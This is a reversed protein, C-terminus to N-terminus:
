PLVFIRYYRVSASATNTNSATSGTALIDPVQDTWNTGSLDDLYQLRYGQGPISTWTVTAVGNTFDIYQIVPQSAITLIANSSTATGFSNSVIVNYSGADSVAVSSITFTSNTQGDLTNTGKLWQYSPLTGTVGVTFSASTGPVNTRSQPQATIIPDIVTLLAPPTSTVSGFANSVSVTYSAGDPGLVNNVSLTSTMSGSINGGDNLGVGNRFWQYNLTATGTVAVTFNATTGANNTRSQPQGTILPDNVTLLAPPASTVVGFSNSVTVTYVAEDPGFVNNVSLTTSTAGSINGGNSLPSGNRFWRYNLTPAGSASVTFTATTGPNNTRSAPQASIFPDIVTLIAPPASTVTSFNNSVTVTYNADDGGQVSSISLSATTVGSIRGGNSMGVGNKFWRYRLTPSGNATVTFTATTGANNTRSQPQGSIFPDLVTLIGPTSTVVATANSVVVFYNGADTGDANSVTLTSNTQGAIPTNGFRWQYNLGPGLAIVNFTANSGANVTLNAPPQMILPANTSAVMVDDMMKVYPVPDSYMDVTIGGTVFAPVSDYNNDVANIKLLGDFYVSINTGSFSLTLTHWNTGVAPLSVQQMPAFSWTTWGEFKVLKLVMSGGVSGDPYIWAGYHSGTAPNLRGGIGGGWAGLTSFRIRAQATYNTWSPDHYWAYGYANTPSTSTMSNNTVTWNGLQQTWPALTSPNTARTLDDYFLYGPPTIMFTVTAPNSNTQGDGARYSFSDAGFFNSNPTYSFGGNNSLTLSGHAPGVLLSASLSLNAIGTIDNSLVGPASVVIPSGQPGTYFDDSAVPPLSYSVQVNTVSTGVLLKIVQNNTRYSNTDAMVGNTLVQLGFWASSPALLEVASNTDIAGSIALTSVSQNGNTDLGPVFQPANRRQWWNYVAVANVPWVRPKSLSYNVYDSAVVGAPGSGDSSSHSYLNILAGIRTYYDVLAHVTNTTHGSEMDQGVQTGLFWDSVPLTLFSYLKDPTQTSVTWHPFPGLKQDGTVQIGLQEQIQYSAERTANFYPAVWLKLGSGNNTNTVWGAIDSFSNSLSALAYATGDSYGPPSLDLVEDPGWHWYDYSNTTLPPSYININTLGGNHPAVTANYNSVARNLSAVTAAVNTMNERLEGTCFYYDGNAGRNFEYQASIEISNILSPIAEMDHRFIVAADYPFPWPSLKQVPAKSCQFAWEIANRVIGYSYMGPAWGGHNILPQMAAVYIFWGKGYPTVLLYPSADAQALVTAGTPRVRWMLHRLGTPAFPVHNAEPWSIEESASPLQWALTGQPIHALLRHSSTATFTANSTWNTLGPVIMHLGMPGAIAFDGRSIGNTDRTFSSSGVFLFGGAAVYNTFQSIEDDRIAESALSVLIPYAPLGNSTLLAGASVDSDGLVAFATGDSRLMEKLGEPLTFYHWNTPWWQFGTTGAGSPTGNTAPILELARTLESDHIAVLPLTVQSWAPTALGALCCFVISYRWHFASRIGCLATGRLAKVYFLFTLFRCIRWFDMM